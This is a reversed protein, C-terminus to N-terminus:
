NWCATEMSRVLPCLLLLYIPTWWISRAALDVPVVPGHSDINLEIPGLLATRISSNRSSPDSPGQAKLSIPRQANM